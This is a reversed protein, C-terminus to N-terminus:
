RNGARGSAGLGRLAQLYARATDPNQVTAASVNLALHIDPREQLTLAAIELARRDLLHVCGLEEAAMIFYAASVLEGNDRRLRLLCEYHHVTREKARLIPQYALTINRENLATIIDDRTFDTKNQRPKLDPLDPGYSIFEGGKNQSHTLALEAHNMVDVANLNELSCLTGGVSFEAYLDGYPSGYPLATLLSSIRKAATQLDEPQCDSLGISFVSGSVRACIDPARVSATLRRAVATLLRDGAAYGYNTNIHELNSIQFCLYASCRDYRKSVALMQAVSEAMRSRNQLGTLADYNAHYGAQEERTKRTQINTLAGIIQTPKNGDGGIREGREEVWIQRGDFTNIQYEIQFKAGNWTLSAYAQARKSTGDDVLRETLAAPSIPVNEVGTCFLAAALAKHDWTLTSDQWLYPSITMLSMLKDRQSMTQEELKETLNLFERGMKIGTVM